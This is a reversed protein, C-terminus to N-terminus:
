TGNTDVINTLQCFAIVFRAGGGRFIRAAHQENAVTPTIAFVVFFSRTKICFMSVWFFAFYGKVKDSM